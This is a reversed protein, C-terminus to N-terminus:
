WSAPRSDLFGAPRDIGFVSHEIGFNETIEANPM